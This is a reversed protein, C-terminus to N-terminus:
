KSISCDCRKWCNPLWTGYRFGMKVRSKKYSKTAITYYYLESIGAGNWIPDSGYESSFYFGKSDKSFEFSNSPYGRDTIIQTAEGTEMNLLFNYPDKLADSAYSRSRQTRYVMWKGDPSISYGSLPKANNTIRKISKNKLDYAYIRSPKWHLSDEIVQVNDKLEKLEQEYLTSGENSQYLLTNENQWSISSVGNKFEKVETAEGGYISLKWLKKGKERSSLFYIFEGDKSFLPSYDNEDSNTLQITKFTDKEPLDLRTLYIDSVFKDKEKVGKSKTWVVMSGDPSISVSRMSETHIIDEPTWRTKDKEQAQFSFNILFVLILTFIYSNTKM